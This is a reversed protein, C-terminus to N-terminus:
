PQLRALDPSIPRCRQVRRHKFRAGNPKSTISCVMLVGTHWFPQLRQARPDAQDSNYDEPVHRKAPCPNEGGGAGRHSLLRLLPGIALHAATSAWHADLPADDRGSSARWALVGRQLYHCGAHDNPRGAWSIAQHAHCACPGYAFDSCDRPRRSARAGSHELAIRFIGLAFLM